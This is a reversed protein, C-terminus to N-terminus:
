QFLLTSWRLWWPDLCIFRLSCFPERPSVLNFHFCLFSLRAICRAWQRSRFRLVSRFAEEVVDSNRRCRLVCARVMVLSVIFLRRFNCSRTRDSTIRRNQIHALLKAVPSPCVLHEMKKESKPFKRIELICSVTCIPPLPGVGVVGHVLATLRLHAANTV